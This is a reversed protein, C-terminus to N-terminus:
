TIMTAAKKFNYSIGLIVNNIGSVSGTSCLHHCRCFVHLQIKNGLLQKEVTVVMSSIIVKM